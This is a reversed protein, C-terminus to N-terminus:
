DHPILTPNLRTERPRKYAVVYSTYSFTCAGARGNRFGPVYKAHRYEKLMARGVNFDPPDESVVKMDQVNGDVDVSIALEAAGSRQYVRAKELDQKASDWDDTGAIMQPAIFDKGHALDDANQNAYVRLQPKGNVMFFMVAGTFYVSIPKQNHLAPIFFSRKLAAEVAEALRKSNPTGRYTLGDEALGSKGVYCEFMVVADGQGKAALKNTDIQNVLSRPSSGVLAPRWSNQEASVVAGM